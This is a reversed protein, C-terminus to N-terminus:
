SVKCDTSTLVFATILGNKCSNLTCCVLMKSIPLITIQRFQDFSTVSCEKDTPVLVIM